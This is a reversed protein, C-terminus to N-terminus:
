ASLRVKYIVVPPKTKDKQLVEVDWKLVKEAIIQGYSSSNIVDSLLVFDQVISASGLQVGAVAEIANRRAETLAIQVAETATINALEARGDCTVWRDDASIGSVPALLLFLCFLASIIRNM